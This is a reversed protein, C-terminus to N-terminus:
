KAHLSLTDAQIRAFDDPTFGSRGSPQLRASGTLLDWIRQARYPEVWELGLNYRYGTPAPRHNATVIVHDPPDYLHPLDDFPVWVTWEAAGSSGDAPQ